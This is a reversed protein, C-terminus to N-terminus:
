GINWVEKRPSLVYFVKSQTLSHFPGEQIPRFITFPRHIADLYADFDARGIYIPLRM